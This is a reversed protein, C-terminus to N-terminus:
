IHSKASLIPSTKNPKKRGTPSSTKMANMTVTMTIDLGSDSFFYFVLSVPEQNLAYRKAKACTREACRAFRLRTIKLIIPTQYLAILSNKDTKHKLSSRLSTLVAVIFSIQIQSLPM